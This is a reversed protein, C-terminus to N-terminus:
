LQMYTHVRWPSLIDIESFFTPIDARRNSPLSCFIIALFIALCYYHLTLTHFYIGWIGEVKVIASLMKKLFRWRTALHSMQFSQFGSSFCFDLRPLSRSHIIQILRNCKRIKVDIVLFSLPLLLYFVQCVNIQLSVCTRSTRRLPPMRYSLSFSSSMFLLCSTWGLPTLTRKFASSKQQPM